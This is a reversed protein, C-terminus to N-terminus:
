WKRKSSKVVTNFVTLAQILHIQKVVSKVHMSITIVTESYEKDEKILPRNTHM